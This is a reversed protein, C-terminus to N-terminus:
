TTATAGQRAAPALGELWVVLGAGAFIALLALLSGVSLVAIGSLGHGVTCGLGIVAGTGTLVAGVLQRVPNASAGLGQLKFEGRVVASLLAGLLTALLVVVGLTLTTAGPRLAFHVADSLPGAYSFSQVGLGEPPESMFSAEDAARTGLPGATLAYGVAVMLGIATAAVWAARSARWPLAPSALLVIAVGLGAGLAIRAGLSTWGLIADLGQGTANWKRLDLSLPLLWPAVGRDFLATRSFVYAAAAMVALLVLAWLSGQGLRIATRLPCGRALAMGAGFLLGGALYRGWPLVPALYPPRAPTVAQGLIWQLASVGLLAAAIAVAYTALRAPRGETVAERLGGQPCFSSAQAAVGVVFAAAFGGLLLQQYSTM